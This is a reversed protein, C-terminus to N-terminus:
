AMRAIGKAKEFTRMGAVGLMGFLLPYLSAVDVQPYQLTKGFLAAGWTAFPAIIFQSALATVCVWGVAPRWGSVFVSANTAEAKDVELQGKLIDTEATLEALEGNQQLQMLALKAADRQAPDAICRDLVKGALDAVAGIGTLDFGM